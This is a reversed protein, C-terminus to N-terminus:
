KTRVPPHNRIFQRPSFYNSYGKEFNARKLGIALNKRIEFHLHAVYMGRNNGITGIQQGRSVTEGLEVDRRDLHGYLSDVFRIEGNERDRYRHRLIIVNGWGLKYDQSFVVQGTGIAYVPDGLDSNGGGTGNWDDGLHEHPSFGRTVYYGRGDPKGVPMEFGDAIEEPFLRPNANGYRDPIPERRGYDLIGDVIAEALEERYGQTTVKELDDSNSLFGGEVLVAPVNSETLLKFAGTKLGRSEPLLSNVRQQLDLGLQNANIRDAAFIETGRIESNASASFHISVLIAEEPENVIGVREDLSVFQDDERTLVVDIGKGKLKESVLTGVKLALESEKFGNIMAGSDYGGHAPDIVVTQFAVIPKRLIEAREDAWGFWALPLALLFPLAPLFRRAGLGMPRRPVKRDLIRLLRRELNGAQAIAPVCLYKSAATELVADAYPKSAIGLELVLDDCANEREIRLQRCALWVLPNWWQMALSLQCLWEVLCDRRKVHALEHALVARLKAPEWTRAEAPLGVWPRYVGWTMPQLRSGPRFWAIRVKRSLGLSRCVEDFVPPDDKESHQSVTRLWIQSHIARLLIAIGGVLFTLILLRSWDFGSRENALTPAKDPVPSTLSVDEASVSTSTSLMQAAPRGEVVKPALPVQKGTWALVPLVTAAVLLSLWMRHRAAASFRGMALVVLWGAVLLLVSRGVWVAVESSLAEVWLNM